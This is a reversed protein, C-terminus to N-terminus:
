KVKKPRPRDQPLLIGKTALIDYLEEADLPADPNPPPNAQRNLFALYDPHNDALEEEAVGVVRARYVAVVLNSLDRQAYPM